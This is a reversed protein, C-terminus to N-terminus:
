LITQGVSREWYKGARSWRYNITRNLKRLTKGAIAYGRNISDKLAKERNWVFVYDILLSDKKDSIAKVSMVANVDSTQYISDRLIAGFQVSYIKNDVKDHYEYYLQQKPFTNAVYDNNILQALIPRAMEWEPNVVKQPVEAELEKKQEENVNATCGLLAALLLFSPKRMLNENLFEFNPQKVNLTVTCLVLNTLKVVKLENEWTSRAVYGLKAFMKM